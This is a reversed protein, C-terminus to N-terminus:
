LFVQQEAQELPYAQAQDVPTNITQNLPTSTSLPLPANQPQTAAHTVIGAKKLAAIMKEEKLEIALDLAARGAADLENFPKIM